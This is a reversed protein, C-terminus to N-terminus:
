AKLFYVIALFLALFYFQVFLFIALFILLVQFIEPMIIGLKKKLLTVRLTMQGSMETCPKLAYESIGMAFMLGNVVPV